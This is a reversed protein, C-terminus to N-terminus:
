PLKPDASPPAVRQKEVPQVRRRSSKLGEFGRGALLAVVPMLPARMRMDTWFVTHVACLAALLLMSWVWPTQHLGRGILWLGLGAMAYVGVYWLAVAYRAFRRRPTEGPLGHPLPTWLRGLRVACAYAFTSPEERIHDLAEAYERRDRALEEEPTTPSSFKSRQDAFFAEADWVEDWKGEFLHEYFFPNNALLLTYGGHTTSAIPQRFVLTNRVVWPVLVLLGALFGGLLQARRRAANPLLAIALAALAFWVLFAPRCLAALSLCAGAIAARRPTPKQGVHTLAALGVVALLVALTETMVQTSWFVLLPDVAVLAAAIWIGSSLRLRRALGFVFLVTAVGLALHLVAIAATVRGSLAVCPVLLLPYLPPRYATPHDNAAFRHEDFLNEAILRYSDPDDSMADRLIILTGGRVFLALLAVAVLLRRPLPFRGRDDSHPEMTCGAKWEGASTYSHAVSVSM